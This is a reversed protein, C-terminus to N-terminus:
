SGCNELCVIRWFAADASKRELRLHQARGRQRWQVRCELASDSEELVEVAGENVRRVAGRDGSIPGEYRLYRPRHDFLREGELAAGAALEDPRHELRFSYLPEAGAPDRALLLDFHHTGDPLEHRLVV